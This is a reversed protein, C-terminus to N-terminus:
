RSLSPCDQGRTSILIRQLTDAVATFIKPASQLGFPFAKDNYVADEWRVGLLLQDDPHVPIMRYAEKIDAKVLYAGEGEQLILISLHKFSEPNEVNYILTCMNVM